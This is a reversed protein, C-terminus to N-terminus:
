AEDKGVDTKNSEEMKQSLLLSKTLMKEQMNRKDPDTKVKMQGSLHEAVSNINLLITPLIM